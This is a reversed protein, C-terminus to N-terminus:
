TIQGLSSPFLSPKACSRYCITITASVTGMATSSQTEVVEHQCHLLHCHQNKIIVLDIEMPIISTEFNSRITITAIASTLLSSAM